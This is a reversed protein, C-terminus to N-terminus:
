SLLALLLTFEKGSAGERFCFFCDVLNKQEAIVNRIIRQKTENDIEGHQVVRKASHAAHRAGPRGGRRASLRDRRGANQGASSM